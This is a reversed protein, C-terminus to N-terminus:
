AASTRPFLPRRMKEGSPGHPGGVPSSLFKVASNRVDASLKRDSSIKRMLNEYDAKKDYEVGNIVRNLMWVTHPTPKRDLSDVLLSEYGKKFYREVTHAIPGPSGFDFEPNEEMISLLEPVFQLGDEMDDIEDCVNEITGEDPNRVLERIRKHMSDDDLM